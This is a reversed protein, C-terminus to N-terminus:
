TALGLFLTNNDNGFLGEISPTPERFTFVESIASGGLTVSWVVLFKVDREISGVRGTAIDGDRDAVRGRWFLPQSEYSGARGVGRTRILYPRLAFRTRIM